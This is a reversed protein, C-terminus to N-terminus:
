TATLTITELSEYSAGRPTLTSKFLTLATVRFEPRQKQLIEGCPGLLSSLEGTHLSSRTRGLTIHSTFPKNEKPFGIEAFGEELEAALKKIEQDGKEVGAWIVRPFRGSPFAGLKVLNASFPSAGEATQRLISSVKELGAQDIEGLFKLTLHINQPEVWKVDARSKKLEQQIGTLLKILGEPLTIAIFTRM